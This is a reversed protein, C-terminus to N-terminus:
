RPLVLEAEVGGHECNRLVVDGGHARAINRAISLGLGTGGTERSRSSELRYFPEFVQELATQPIGPGEDTILIRLRDPDDRVNLHAVKGYQSANAVLNTICRKLALPRGPYPRADITELEVAGGTDEVDDKVNELLAPVDVDRIEEREEMGRLFDLSEQTMHQMDNIDRAISARLEPDEISEARLRLRTIPTKLDHSMASLIRTRDEIFRVLREQMTNFALAARRVESPGTARLPPQRIDRGLREAAEALVGLPRSVWRVAILSLAIVSILLVGLTLLLRQPWAFVEEPVRHGFNLWTGDRLEIQGVFSVGDPPLVGMTEMHRWHAPGMGMGPGHPFRMRTAAPSGPETETVTVTLPRDEGLNQRLLARFFRVMSNQSQQRTADPWADPSLVLQLTPSNFAEVVQQRQALDVSELLRVIDALRQASQLGSAEYLSRGREQFLIAASLLQAALVGILLVLVLRGFLSGPLLRRM